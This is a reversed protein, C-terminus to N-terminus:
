EQRQLYTLGRPDPAKVEIFGVLAGHVVVAYDPRTGLDTRVTEGV